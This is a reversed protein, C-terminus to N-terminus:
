ATWIPRTSLYLCVAGMHFRRHLESTERTGAVVIALTAAVLSFCVSLRTRSLIM